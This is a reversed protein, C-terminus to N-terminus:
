IIDFWSTVKLGAPVLLLGLKTTEAVVAGALVPSEEKLVLGNILGWGRVGECGGLLDACLLVFDLVCLVRHSSHPACRSPNHTGYEIVRLQLM